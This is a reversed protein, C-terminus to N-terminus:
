TAPSKVACRYQPFANEIVTKIAAQTAPRLARDCHIVVKERPHRTYTLEEFRVPLDDPDALRAIREELELTTM